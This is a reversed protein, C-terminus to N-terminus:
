LGSKEESRNAHVSYESPVEVGLFDGLKQWKNPDELRGVHLADPAQRQFFNKVELNHLRYIKKYHEGYEAIDMTKNSHWNNEISEDIKGEKIMEFYEIERRYIKCHIKARGIIDGESHRVMSQFWDEENREFLIFKSNPFHNYLVRYFRPLWWPSDAFADSRRFDASSFISEFDGDYWADSWGNRKDEPWGACYFGYDELFKEVSTTGTRQMSVCFVKPTRNGIYRGIYKWWYSSARRRLKRRSGGLLHYMENKMQLYPGLETKGLCIRM